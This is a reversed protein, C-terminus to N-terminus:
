VSIRIQRADSDSVVAHGRPKVGRSRFAEADAPCLQSEACPHPEPQQFRPETTQSFHDARLTNALEVIFIM